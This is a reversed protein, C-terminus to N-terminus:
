YNLTAVIAYDDITTETNPESGELTGAVHFHDDSGFDFTPNKLMYGTDGINCGDDLTGSGKCTFDLTAGACATGASSLSAAAPSSGASVVGSSSTINGQTDMTISFTSKTVYWSGFDMDNSLGIRCTPYLLAKVKIDVSQEDLAPHQEAWVNGTGLLCGAVTALLLYKKM